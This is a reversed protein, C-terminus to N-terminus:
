RPPTAGGMIIGGGGGERHVSTRIRSNPIAAARALRRRRPVGSDNYTLLQASNTDKPPLFDRSCPAVSFDDDICYESL